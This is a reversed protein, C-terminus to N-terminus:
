MLGGDDGGEGGGTWGETRAARASPWMGLDMGLESGGTGFGGPGVGGADDEEAVGVVHAVGEGAAPHSDGEVVGEEEGFEEVGIATGSRPFRGRWECRWPRAKWEGDFIRVEMM